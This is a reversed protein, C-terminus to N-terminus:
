VGVGEHRQADAFHERRHGYAKIEHKGTLKRADEMMKNYLQRDRQVNTYTIQVNANLKPYYM